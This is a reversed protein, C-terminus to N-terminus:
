MGETFGLDAKLGEIHQEEFDAEEMAELIMDWTPPQHGRGDIWKALGAQVAGEM